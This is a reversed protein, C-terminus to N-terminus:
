DVYLCVQFFNHPRPYFFPIKSGLIGVKEVEAYLYGSYKYLSLFYFCSFILAGKFGKTKSTSKQWVGAVGGKEM